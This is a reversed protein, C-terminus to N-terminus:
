PKSPKALGVLGTLELNLLLDQRLFYPSHNSFVDLTSGRTGVSVPTHVHLCMSMRVLVYM